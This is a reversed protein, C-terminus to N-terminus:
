GKRTMAAGGHFYIPPSTPLRSGSTRRGRHFRNLTRISQL